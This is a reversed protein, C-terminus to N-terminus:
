QPRPLPLVVSFVSGQGVDSEVTLDGGLLRTLRRSVCLGMSERMRDGEQESGTKGFPDFLTAHRDPSLGPGTDRVHFCAQDRETEFSLVVMGVDTSRVAHALLNSLIRKLRIRDTPVTVPREPGEVRVALGKRRADDRVLDVAEEAIEGADVLGRSLTVREEEIEALCLIDEILQLLEWASSRIRGIQERQGPTMPGSVGGELLDGYGLIANLPTRLEHGLLSLFRGATEGVLRPAGRDTGARGLEESPTESM